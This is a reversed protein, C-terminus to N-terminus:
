FSILAATALLRPPKNRATPSSQSNQGITPAISEPPVDPTDNFTSKVKELFTTKGAVM